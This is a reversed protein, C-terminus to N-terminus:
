FRKKGAKLKKKLSKQATLDVKDITCNQRQTFFNYKISFFNPEKVRKRVKLKEIKITTKRTIIAFHTINRHLAPLDFRNAITIKNLM